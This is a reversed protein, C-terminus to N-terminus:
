SNTHIRVLSHIHNDHTLPTNTQTHVHTDTCAHSAYTRILTRTSHSCYFGYKRETVTGHEQKQYKHSLTTFVLWAEILHVAEGHMWGTCIYLLMTM